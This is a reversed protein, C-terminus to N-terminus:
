LVVPPEEEPPETNWNFTHLEFSLTKTITQRWVNWEFLYDEPDNLMAELRDVLFVLDNSFRENHLKCFELTSLFLEKPSLRIEPQSKKPSQLARFIAENWEGCSDFGAGCISEVFFAYMSRGDWKPADAVELKFTPWLECFFSICIDYAEGVSYQKQTWSAEEPPTLKRM